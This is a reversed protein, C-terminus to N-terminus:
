AVSEVLGHVRVEVDAKRALKVMQGTGGVLEETFALVLDPQGEKLMRSNRIYGAGKGYRDWDAPFEHVPIGLERAVEGGITDAGRAAGHIVLTAKGVLPFLAEFIALRDRWERSGCILVVFEYSGNEANSGGNQPTGRVEGRGERRRAESLRISADLASREDRWVYGGQSLHNQVCEACLRSVKGIRGSHGHVCKRTTGSYYKAEFPTHDGKRAM